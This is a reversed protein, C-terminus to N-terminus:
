YSLVQLRLFYTPVLGPNFTFSITTANNLYAAGSVEAWPDLIGLDTTAEISYSLGYTGPRKTYSLTTANLASALTNGTTPDLGSLAYELLNSIGDNDPDDTPGRQNAPITAGGAFTGATWSAYSVPGSTVNLIGTGPAFYTDLTGAGLGGNSAGTSSHGYQGQPVQISGIFLRNVTDTGTFGLQLMAGSVALTVTSLENSANVTSLTLTGGNVTTNGTYSTTGSLTFNGIGSKTLNINTATIIGSFSRNSNDRIGCPL